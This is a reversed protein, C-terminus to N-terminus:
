KANRLSFIDADTLHVYGLQSDETKKVTREYGGERQKFVSPFLFNRLGQIIYAPIFIAVARASSLPLRSVSM